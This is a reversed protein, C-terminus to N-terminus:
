KNPTGPVWCFPRLHLTLSSHVPTRPSPTLGERGARWRTQGGLTTAGATRASWGRMLMGPTPEAPVGRSEWRPETDSEAEGQDPASLPGVSQGRCSHLPQRLYVKQLRHTQFCCAAQSGTEGGWHELEAWPLREWGICGGSPGAPQFEPTERGQPQPAVM